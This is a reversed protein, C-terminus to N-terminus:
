RLQLPWELRISDVGHTLTSLDVQRVPKGSPSVIYLHSNSRDTLWLSDGRFGLTQLAPVGPPYSVFVPESVTENLVLVSNRSSAFCAIRGTGSSSCRSLLGSAITTKGLSVARLEPVGQGRLAFAAGLTIAFASRLRM